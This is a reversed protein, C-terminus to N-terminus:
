YPRTPESIHILSLLIYPNLDPSIALSNPLPIVGTTPDFLATPIFTNPNSPVSPTCALVAVLLLPAPVLHRLKM